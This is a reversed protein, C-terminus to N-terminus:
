QIDLNGPTLTGANRQAVWEVLDLIASAQRDALRDGAPGDVYRIDFTVTLDTSAGTSRRVQHANNSRPTM